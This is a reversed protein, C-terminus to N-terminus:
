DRGAGPLHESLVAGDQVGGLTAGFATPGLDDHLRNRQVGSLLVRDMRALPDIFRLVCSVRSGPAHASSRVSRHWIDKGFLLADGPDMRPAIAARELSAIHGAGGFREYPHLIAERRSLDGDCLEKMTEYHVAASSASRPVYEVGGWRRDPRISTLPIWLSWAGDAPRLFNFSYVDFHWRVGPDGPAQVFAAGHTFVPQTGCLQRALDAFRPSSSLGEVASCTLDVDHHSDILKGRRTLGITARETLARVARQTLLGRLVLAGEREFEAVQEPTVSCDLTWPDSESVVM